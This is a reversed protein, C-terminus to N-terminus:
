EVLYSKNGPSKYRGDYNILIQGTGSVEMSWAILQNGFGAGTGTLDAHNKPFYLTGELDMLNTGVIRADNTNERDQFISMGEYLGLEPPTIRLEGTGGLNVVGDGTIYFM